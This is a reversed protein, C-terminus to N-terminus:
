FSLFFTLNFVVDGKRADNYDYIWVNPQIKWSAHRPTWDLGAIILGM